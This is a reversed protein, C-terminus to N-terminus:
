HHSSGLKNCFMENKSRLGPAARHRQGQWHRQWHRQWHWHGMGDHGTKPQWVAGRRAKRAGGRRATHEGMGAMARSQAATPQTSTAWHATEQTPSEPIFILVEQTVGAGGQVRVGGASLVHHQNVQLVLVLLLELAGQGTQLVLVPRHFVCWVCHCRHSVLM